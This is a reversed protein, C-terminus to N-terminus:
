RPIARHHRMNKKAKSSVKMTNAKVVLDLVPFAISLKALAAILVMYAVERMADCRLMVSVCAIM